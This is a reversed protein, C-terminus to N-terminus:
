AAGGGGGDGWSKAKGKDRSGPESPGSVAPPAQPPVLISPATSFPFFTAGFNKHPPISFHWIETKPPPGYVDPLPDQVLPSTDEEEDSESEGTEDGGVHRPRDIIPKTKIRCARVPRRRPEISNKEASAPEPFPPTSSRM